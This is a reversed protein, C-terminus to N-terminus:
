TKPKERWKYNFIAKTGNPNVFFSVTCFEPSTSFKQQRPSFVSAKFYFTMMLALPLLLLVETKFASMLVGPTLSYCTDFIKESFLPWGKEKASEKYKYFYFQSKGQAYLFKVYMIFCLVKRWMGSIWQSSSVRKEKIWTLIVPWQIQGWSRRRSACKTYGEHVQTFCLCRWRCDGPLLIEVM